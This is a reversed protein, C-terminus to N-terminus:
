FKNFVETLKTTASDSVAVGDVTGSATGSIAAGPARAGIPFYIEFKATLSRAGRVGDTFNISYNPWSGGLAFPKHETYDGDIRQADPVTSGSPGAMAIDISISDAECGGNNYIIVQVAM